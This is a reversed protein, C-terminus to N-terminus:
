NSPLQTVLFEHEHYRIAVQQVREGASFHLRLRRANRTMPSAVPVFSSNESQDVGFFYVGIGLEDPDTDDDLVDADYQARVNVAHLNWEEQHVPDIDVVLYFSRPYLHSLEDDGDLFTGARTEEIECITARAEKMAETAAEIERSVKELHTHFRRKALKGILKVLVIGFGAGAFAGLWGFYVAGVITSIIPTAVLSLLIVLFKNM